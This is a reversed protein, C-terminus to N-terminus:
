QKEPCFTRELVLRSETRSELVLGGPLHLGPVAAARRCDARAGGQAADAKAERLHVGRRLQVRGGSWDAFLRILISDPDFPNM